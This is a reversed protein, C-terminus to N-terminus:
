NQRGRRPALLDLEAVSSAAERLRDTLGCRSVVLGEPERTAFVLYQVDEPFVYDCDSFVFEGALGLTATVVTFEATGDGKWRADM